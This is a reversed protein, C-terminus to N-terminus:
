PTSELQPLGGKGHVLPASALLIRAGGHRPM